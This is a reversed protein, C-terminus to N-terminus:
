EPLYSDPLLNLVRAIGLCGRAKTISIAFDIGDERAAFRRWTSAQNLWWAKRSHINSSRLTSRKTKM